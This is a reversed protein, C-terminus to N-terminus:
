HLRELTEVKLFHGRSMESNKGALMKKGKGVEFM